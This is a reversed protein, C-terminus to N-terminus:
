AAKGDRLLAVVILHKCRRGRYRNDPCTCTGNRVDVSYDVDPVTASPVLWIDDSYEAPPDETADGNVSLMRVARVLRRPHLALFRFEVVGIAGHLDAAEVEMVEEGQPDARRLVWTGPPGVGLLHLEEDGPLRCIAHEASQIGWVHPMGALTREADIERIEKAMVM